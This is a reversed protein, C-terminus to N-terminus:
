QNSYKPIINDIEAIKNRLKSIAIKYENKENEIKSTLDNYEEHYKYYEESYSEDSHKLAGYLERKAWTEGIKQRKAVIEEAKKALEQICNEKIDKLAKVIEKSYNNSFMQNTDM